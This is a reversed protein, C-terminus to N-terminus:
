RSGFLTDFQVGVPLNWKLPQGNFEFWMEDYQELKEPPGYADFAQKIEQLIFYFYNERPALM